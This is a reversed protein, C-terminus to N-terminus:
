NKLARLNVLGEGSIKVLELMYIGAPLEDASVHLIGSEINGSRVMRGYIDYLRWGSAAAPIENEYINWGDGAPNPWLRIPKSIEAGQIGLPDILINIVRIVTDTACSDSIVLMVTYTGSATYIHVPDEVSSTDGDGFYWTITNSMFASDPFVITGTFTAVGQQDTTYTFSAHPSLCVNIVQTVTDSACTNSVILTVTYSGSVAYAHAPNAISSSDGDGFDWSLADSANVPPPFISTSSFIIAGTTDNTWTFGAQPHLCITIVQSTTDSTCSNYAILTVTYSGSATYTHTPNTVSSTDGDGFDWLITNIAPPPFFSSSTFNIVASNTATWTFAAQPSLCVSINQTITDTTCSNSAILMVTYIGSATYTHSPNTVSSTDGDGFDWLISNTAPPPFYATSSFNITGPGAATWTFAAQPSLCVSLVQEVTDTFCGNAVIMWVTFTGSSSYTHTPSLVSSTDGDGFEWRISNASGYLPPFNVHGTFAYQGPAASNSTFSADAHLCANRDVKLFFLEQSGSTLGVNRGGVMLHGDATECFASAFQSYTFTYIRQWNINFLTDVNMFFVDKGFYNQTGTTDITGAITITADDNYVIGVTKVYQHDTFNRSYLTDGNANVRILWLGGKVNTSSTRDYDYNAPLVYGMTGPLKLSTNVYTYEGTHTNNYPNYYMRAPQMLNTSLNFKQLAIYSSNNSTPPATGYQEGILMLTLSDHQHIRSGYVNSTRSIGFSQWNSTATDIEALFQTGAFSSSNKYYMFLTRGDAITFPPAIPRYITSNPSAPWSSSLLVGQRSIRVTFLNQYIVTTYTIRGSVIYNSDADYGIVSPAEKFPVATPIIVNWLPVFNSDTRVMAFDPYNGNFVPVTIGFGGDKDAVM